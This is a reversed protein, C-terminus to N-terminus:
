TFKELTCYVYELGRGGFQLLNGTVQVAFVSCNEEANKTFWFYTNFKALISLLLVNYDLTAKYSYERLELWRM